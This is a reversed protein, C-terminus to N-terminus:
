EERQERWQRWREYSIPIPFSFPQADTKSVPADNPKLFIKEELPQIELTAYGYTILFSALYARRLTEEYSEAGIFDWYDMKGDRTAKDKLEMWMREIESLFTEDRLIGQKVLEERTTIGAEAKLLDEERWRESLPALSRWYKMSSKLSGITIQELEVIPHWAKLFVEALDGTSLSRLKEEILFPDRYLSTARRKVWESQMRIISAVQNLAEADLSLEEANKLSPFYERIVSILDEVNVLFPNLGKNEVSRCFEIIRRLEERALRRRRPKASM